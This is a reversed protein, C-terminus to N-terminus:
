EKEVEKAQESWRELEFTSGLSMREVSVSGDEDNFRIVTKAYQYAMPVEKELLRAAECAPFFANRATEKAEEVARLATQREKEADELRDMADDIRRIARALMNLPDNNLQEQM